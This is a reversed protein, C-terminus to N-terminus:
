SSGARNLRRGTFTLTAKYVGSGDENRVLITVAQDDGGDETILSSLDPLSALIKGRAAELDDCETGQDDRNSKGDHIDFYFRPM